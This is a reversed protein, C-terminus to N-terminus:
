YRQFDEDEGTKMDLVVGKDQSEPINNKEVITKSRKATKGEHSKKIGSFDKVISQDKRMKTSLANEDFKFFTSVDKLSEAQSSLEESTSAMEETASANQQIAKDLQEIAKTVQEIGRAQESSSVNIEQILESTKQIQPVMEAMVKGAHEAINVSEQSLTSIEKAATKSREALNRVETAVVAFGKGHDGARAAEIAANLALMNTQGAIAEIIGIKEAISKMAKVTDSVAKGGEIADKAAKESLSATQKANDANQVVSSNMQEMSSTVEEVNSSQETAMQSMQETSSSIQQSGSAVQESSTTVNIAFGTLDEIMKQLSVMLEDQDSRKTAKVVLNGSAINKSIDTIVNIADILANLNNKVENFDGNYSDIIKSPMNGKSIKDVYDAAVNLPGIVADLTDNVGEVIKRFDGQHKTADARTDLKGDVAAKALMNADAILNNVADICKNLNNKVENFDGNYSDTIKQPIDGNSIRDVYEAAVNLPGIVADLTNNVGEVIKRFDGEHKSADARTALKGDVAAKALIAADAVLKNVADICKNLNNKIENFDGNYTDTIKNPINGNSIRDVYEAAVNLPGIVADLTNNVGEVIKRFDGEHKSADARTALKGDVAAKALIGADAVLKNVADICKNLNNKIENFDGNYNDTIKQPIDGNSIRDVYEAAVNLPGIVADLTNNVGEVVKRFDGEHKTADARTALKGEVAAKALIGADAVLKNVADICKNLNNKIENFDGNYTDTIKNPINGNSIRDVYEAAVNLPGIVADLTNNVGEVIKRFDGQHKTADARTALKGEVAAKVLMIADATMNNVADICKNLNNKIENFDGNYSDTIKQPIDGNSIRDVYEAAVNLPGIVADLTDNVGKVIERFEFNIKGVDGRTALKGGVAAETLKKAEDLLSDIIQMINKRLFLLLGTSLAVAIVILAISMNVSSNALVINKDSTEKAADLNLKTVNELEKSTDHNAKDEEPSYLLTLAEVKKDAKVLAIIKDAFVMYNKYASKFAEFNKKDEESIYTKEYLPFNKELAERRQIVRNYYDAQKTKNQVLILDRVNGRLRHYNGTIDGVIGIPITMKEYLFTDANDITRIDRIGIVGIAVTIIIVIMFGLAIKSALKMKSLM